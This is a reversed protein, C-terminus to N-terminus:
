MGTAVRPLTRRGRSVHVLVEWALHPKESLADGRRREMGDLPQVGVGASLNAFPGSALTGQGGPQEGQGARRSM